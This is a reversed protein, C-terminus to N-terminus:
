GHNSILHHNSPVGLLQTELGYLRESPTASRVLFIYECQNKAELPFLPGKQKPHSRIPESYANM